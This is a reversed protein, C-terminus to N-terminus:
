PKPLLDALHRHLAEAIRQPATQGVGREDLLRPDVPPHITVTVPALRPLARQRPWATHAGEIVVPIVPVPCHELLM